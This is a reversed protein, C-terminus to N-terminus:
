GSRVGCDGFHNGFASADPRMIVPSEDSQHLFARTATQAAQEDCNSHRIKGCTNEPTKEPSCLLERAGEKLKTKRTPRQKATAFLVRSKKNKIVFHVM